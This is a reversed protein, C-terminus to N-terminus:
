TKAPEAATDTGAPPVLEIYEVTVTFKCWPKSVIPAAGSPKAAPKPAPKATTTLM